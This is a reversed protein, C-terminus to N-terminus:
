LRWTGGSLPIKTGSRSEGSGKEIGIGAFPTPLDVKDLRLPDASLAQGAVGGRAGGPLGTHVRVELKDWPPTFGENECQIELVGGNYTFFLLSYEGRRYGWGEEADSYLEGGAYGNEDPYVDLFLVPSREADTHLRPAEHPLISGARVFLPMKEIPAALLQDRAGRYLTDDWFDYWDGQPLYVHRWLTDASSVPAALLHPGFMYEDNVEALREDQPWEFFLPKMVPEAATEARYFASYIYPILSYRLNLYHRAIDLVNKGFSWPEHARTDDATHSRFYPTFASFSFWRAYLQASADEQFGGTDSGVMSVGSISLGLLMPVAAALHEWWSCNDGTWVGANRQLGAYGSRTILFGRSEPKHQRFGARTALNMGASYLNHFRSFSVPTGMDTRAQLENPVTYDPRYESNGTFDAPENMDNWIGAVGHKFLEDHLNGWWERVELRSFDPYVAKGPWVAGTYVSGDPLTCFYGKEIGKKYVSYCPDAKIGPDVITVVKFGEKRLDAILAGPEPFGIKDWTFVRYGDMYDIDLQIVDAPLENRRFDAAIRRVESEPAYSYRSQHYGLGWVPPLATTGTLLAYKQLVARPSDAKLLYMDIYEDEVDITIANRRNLATDWYQRAPNDVFLGYWQQKVSILAFPISVYLPDRSPVHEPEDTNWMDWVRGSRELRGMKEGLGYVRPLEDDCLVTFRLAATHVKWEGIKLDGLTFVPSAAATEVQLENGTKAPPLKEVAWSPPVEDKCLRIRHLGEAYTSVTMRLLSEKLQPAEEACLEFCQIAEGESEDLAAAPRTGAANGGSDKLKLTSFSRRPPKIQRTPNETHALDINEDVETRRDTNV